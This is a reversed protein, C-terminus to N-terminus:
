LPEARQSEEALFPAFCVISIWEVDGLGSWAGGGAAGWIGCANRVAAIAVWDRADREQSLLLALQPCARPAWDRM